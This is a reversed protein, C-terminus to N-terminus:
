TIISETKLSIENFITRAEHLLGAHSCANLVCIQSVHDRLNIRMERYLEVAQTGMGNLAFGNVLFFM